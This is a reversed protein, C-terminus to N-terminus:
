CACQLVCPTLLFSSWLSVSISLKAKYHSDYLKFIVIFNSWAKNELWLLTQWNLNVSTLSLWGSWGKKQWNRKVILNSNEFRLLFFKVKRTRIKKLNQQVFSWNEYRYYGFDRSPIARFKTFDIIKWYIRLLQCWQKESWVGIM